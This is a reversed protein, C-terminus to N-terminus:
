VPLGFAGDQLLQGFGFAQFREALLTEDAGLAEAQFAALDRDRRQVGDDFRHGGGARHFDGDAHRMAAPQVRQDIDDLLRQRSQEAFEGAGAELRVVHLAGAVHFVM